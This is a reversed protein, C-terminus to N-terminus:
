RGEIRLVRRRPASWSGQRREDLTGFSPPRHRCHLPIFVPRRLPLSRLVGLEGSTNEERAGKLSSWHGECREEREDGERSDGVSSNGRSRDARIAGTDGVRDAAVEDRHAYKKLQKSQHGHFVRSLLEKRAGRPEATRSRGSRSHRPHYTARRVRRVLLKM